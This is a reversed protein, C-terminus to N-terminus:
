EIHMEFAVRRKEDDTLAEGDTLVGKGVPSILEEPVGLNVLESMIYEARSLSLRQNFEEDGFQDAYGSVKIKIKRQIRNADLLIDQINLAIQNLESHSEETLEMKGLDFYLYSKMFEEVSKQVSNQNVIVTELTNVNFWPLMENVFKELSSLWEESVKGKIVITQNLISVELDDPITSQQDIYTYLVKNDGPLYFHWSSLFNTKRFNYKGLLSDPHVSGPMILGHVFYSRKDKGFHSILINEKKGLEDIYSKWQTNFYISRGALFLLGALIPVAVLMGIKSKKSVFEEKKETKLCQALLDRSPEFLYTDGNFDILSSNYEDHIQELTKLLIDRYTDLTFGKVLSAIIAHPGQEIVVQYNEMEILNLESSGTDQFSDHVFDTIAKLMGSVMDPDASRSMEDHVESLLLGTEKHILFVHEAKYKITNSLVVESYKRGTVLAQYRWKLSRYSFTNEILENFTQILKKFEENISKRISRGIVPYLADALLKPNQAVSRTIVTEIMPILATSLKEGEHISILVAEPLIKSIELALDNPYNLLRKLKDLEDKDLNLLLQRLRNIETSEM